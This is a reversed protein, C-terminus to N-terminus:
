CCIECMSFLKTCFSFLNHSLLSGAKNFLQIPDWGSVVSNHFNMRDLQYCSCCTGYVKCITGQCILVLESVKAYVHGFPGWSRGMFFQRPMTPSGAINLAKLIMAYNIKTLKHDM